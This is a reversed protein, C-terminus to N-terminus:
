KTAPKSTAKADSGAKTSPAVKANSTAKTSSAAKATQHKPELIRFRPQEKMKLAAATRLQSAREEQQAQAYAAASYLSGNHLDYLKLEPLISPADDPATKSPGSVATAEVYAIGDRVMDIKKAAAMSLDIIANRRFPGRDTVRVIVEKGNKPNTVRLLTGFPLTRHACTLSDKHYAEGSSTRRGHWRNGYYTANGSIKQAFADAPSAVFALLAVIVTLIYKM